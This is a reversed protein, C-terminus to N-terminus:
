LYNMPQVPVGNIRAEFHLHAGFSHGTNGVYGIVQGQKVSAGMSTGFRVQHAYCSSLTSTHQICTYNGYGGSAGVGQILAVRGNAAARIPTGEAAAIDVGAHMHGPRAEGFVGTIPGSVPFIWSGGGGKVPQAPLMGANRAASAALQERIKRQQSEAVELEQEIGKREQRVNSLASQKGQRTQAAGVRTDILEQKVAAIEDRRQLVVRTVTEQRRELRDLRAETRTADAKGDRVVRLIRQDQEGVRSLFEGRELLDAFGDANLVVSVLDPADAQYLEVLRRGLADKAVALRAKLRTLRARETRLETQLRGLEARKADLDAQVRSERTQLGGIKSELRGIRQNYASIDRTLVKETGKRRGIKQRAVDIKRQLQASKAATPAAGQSFVPLFLWLVLPLLAGVLLMRLRM